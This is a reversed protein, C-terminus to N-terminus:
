AFLTCHDTVCAFAQHFISSLNLKYYARSRMSLLWEILRRRVWLLTGAFIVVM